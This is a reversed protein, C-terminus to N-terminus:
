NVTYTGTILTVSYGPIRIAKENKLVEKKLQIRPGSENNESLTEGSTYKKEMKGWKVGPSDLTLLKPQKEFNIVLVSFEGNMTDKTALVRIDKDEPSVTAPIQREQLDKLMELVYYVPRIVNSVTGKIGFNWSCAEWIQATKVAPITSCIRILEAVYLATAQDFCACEMRNYETVAIFATPCFKQVDKAFGSLGAGVGAVDARIDSDKDPFTFDKKWNGKSVTFTKGVDLNTDQGNECFDNPFRVQLSHKGASLFSKYKLARYDQPPTVTEFVKGDIGITAQPLKKEKIVYPTIGNGAVKLDFTYEGPEPCEFTGTLTEAKWMMIRDGYRPWGTYSHYIVFDFLDKHSGLIDKDWTLWGIFINPDIRRVEEAVPLAAKCYEKPTSFERGGFKPGGVAENGLEWYVVNVPEFIGTEEMRKRAWYDINKWDTGQSDVGITRNDGVRGRCFAVWAAAEQPTGDCVNLTIMGKAKLQQLLKLFEGTGAVPQFQRSHNWNWQPKRQAVPGLAQTWHYYNSVLGGPFRVVRPQVPGLSDYYRNIRYNPELSDESDMNVGRLDHSFAIGPNKFNITVNVAPSGQIEGTTLYVTLFLVITKSSLKMM